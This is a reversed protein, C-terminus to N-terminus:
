VIYMICLGYENIHKKTPTWTMSLFFLFNLFSLILPFYSFKWIQNGPRHLWHIKLKKTKGIDKSSTHIVVLVRCYEPFNNQHFLFCGLTCPKIPLNKHIADKRQIIPIWSMNSQSALPAPLFIKSSKCKNKYNNLHDPKM